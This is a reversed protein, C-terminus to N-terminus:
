GGNKKLHLRITIIEKRFDVIKNDQDTITITINDLIDVNTPFYIVPSPEHVLKYGPPVIPAFEYISHMPKGNRYSGSAISCNISITNVSHINVINNSMHKVLPPLIEEKTFGLLPGISQEKNFYIPKTCTLEVKLTNVNAKLNLSDPSQMHTKLYNALASIEYTGTPISIVEDGYYFKNNVDEIVNPISNYTQFSLLGISYNGDTLNISPFIEATLTSSVGTLTFTYSM